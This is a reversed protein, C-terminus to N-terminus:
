TRPLPTGVISCSVNQRSKRPMFPLPSWKLFTNTKPKETRTLHMAFRAITWQISIKSTVLATCWTSSALAKCWVMHEAGSYQLKVLEIFQSYRKDQVSDDVLLFAEPNDQILKAALEWVGVVQSARREPPRHRWRSQSRGFARGSKFAHLQRNHLDSIRCIAAQNDDGCVLM